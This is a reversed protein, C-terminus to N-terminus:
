TIVASQDDLVSSGSPVINVGPNVGEPSFSVVPDQDQQTQQAPLDNPQVVSTGPSIESMTLPQFMIVVFYHRNVILNM